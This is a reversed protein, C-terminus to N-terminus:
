IDQIGNTFEREIFLEIRVDLQDSTFIFSNKILSGNLNDVFPPFDEDGDDEEDYFQICEPNVEGYLMINVTDIKWLNSETIILPTSENNEDFKLGITHAKNINHFKDFNPFGLGASEDYDPIGNYGKKLAFFYSTYGKKNDLRYITHVGFYNYKHTLEYEYVSNAEDPDRVIGM